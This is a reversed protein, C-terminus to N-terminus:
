RIVWTCDPWHVLQPRGAEETEASSFCEDVSMAQRGPMIIVNNVTNGREELFARVWREPSRQFEERDQETPTYNIRWIEPLEIREIDQAGRQRM